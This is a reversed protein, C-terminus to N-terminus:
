GTWPRTWCSAPIRSISSGKGISFAPLTFQSMSDPDRTSSGFSISNITWHCGVQEDRYFFQKRSQIAELDFRIPGSQLAAPLPSFEGFPPPRMGYHPFHVVVLEYRAGKFFYSLRTSLAPVRIDDLDALGPERQDRTNVVDIPSLVDGEGWTVIQQGAVLEWTDFSLKMYADRLQILYEDSDLEEPSYSDRNNSRM